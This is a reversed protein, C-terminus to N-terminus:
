NGMPQLKLHNTIKWPHYIENPQLNGLLQLKMHTTIKKHNTFEQPNYIEIHKIIRPNHNWAFDGEWIRQLSDVVAPRSLCSINKQNWTGYTTWLLNEEVCICGLSNSLNRKIDIFHVDVEHRDTTVLYVAWLTFEGLWGGKNNKFESFISNHPTVEQQELM